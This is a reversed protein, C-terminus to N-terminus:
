LVALAAVITFDENASGMFVNRKEHIESKDSITPNAAHLGPVARIGPLVGDGATTRSVWVGSGAGVSVGEGVAVVTESGVFVAEAGGVAGGVM